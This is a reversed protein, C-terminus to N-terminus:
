PADTAGPLPWWRVPPCLLAGGFGNEDGAMLGMEGNKDEALFCTGDMPAEDMPRGEKWARREALLIRLLHRFSRGLNANSYEDDDLVAEAEACLADLSTTGNPADLNKDTM